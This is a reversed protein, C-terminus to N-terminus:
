QTAGKKIPFSGAVEVTFEELDDPLEAFVIMFPLGMNPQLNLNGKNDGFRNALRKKIETLETNALELDSMM